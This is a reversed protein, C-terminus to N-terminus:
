QLTQFEQSNHLQTESGTKIIKSPLIWWHYTNYYQTTNKEEPAKLQKIQTQIWCPRGIAVPEWSLNKGGEMGVPPKQKHPLPSNSISGLVKGM